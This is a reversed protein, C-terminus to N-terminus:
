DEEFNGIPINLAEAIKRMAERYPGRLAYRPPTNRARQVVSRRELVNRDELARVAAVLTDETDPTLTVGLSTALLRYLDGVLNPNDGCVAHINTNLMLFHTLRPDPSRGMNKLAVFVQDLRTAANNRARTLMDRAFPIPEADKDYPVEDKAILDRLSWQYRVEFRIRHPQKAYIALFIHERGLPCRLTIANLNTQWTDIPLDIQQPVPHNTSSADTAVAFFHPSLSHLFALAEHSRYEHYVEAWQIYPGNWNIVCQRDDMDPALDREPDDPSGGDAVLCLQEAVLQLVKELYLVFLEEQEEVTLYTEPSTLVNDSDDLTSLKLWQEIEENVFLVDRPAADRLSSLNSENHALFRTLNLSLTVEM